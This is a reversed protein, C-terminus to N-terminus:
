YGKKKVMKGTDPNRYIRDRMRIHILINEEPFHGEAFGKTMPPTQGIAELERHLERALADEDAGTVRISDWRKDPVDSLAARAAEETPYPTIDWEGTNQAWSGTYPDAGEVRYWPGEEGLQNTYESGVATDQRM